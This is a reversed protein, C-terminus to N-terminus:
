GFLSDFQDRFNRFAISIRAASIASNRRCIEPSVLCGIRFQLLGQLAKGIAVPYPRNRNNVLNDLRLITGSFRGGLILLAALNRSIAASFIIM